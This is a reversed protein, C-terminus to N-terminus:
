YGMISRRAESGRRFGKVTQLRIPSRTIDLELDLGAARGITLRVVTGQPGPIRKVADALDAAPKGDIQLIVDGPLVGAKLAPSGELATVVRIRQEHMELQVGIGVLTGALQKEMSALMEATLYDSYPDGLASIMGKMAGQVIKNEDVPTVYQEAIKARLEALTQARDVPALAIVAEASLPQDQALLCRLADDVAAESGRAAHQLIQLYARRAVEPAHEDRLRDYAMRFRSNPFLDERYRYNEFAGPKRVLQDIIHRYNIAHKDRGVLRPLTDVHIGAYWLEVRDAHLRAEVEQGILRSHVSYTNRHIHILSGKDVRVTLRLCSDQRQEPLPGLAALEEAHREQRAVNRTAVVGQLLQLYEERSSFDRSGRLHLAQD